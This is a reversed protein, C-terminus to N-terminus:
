CFTLWTRAFTWSSVWSSPFLMGGLASGSMVIGLALGRWRRFYHLAVTSTPVFVLGIGAGMGFAQCFFVKRLILRSHFSINYLSVLGYQEDGILSLVFLSCTYWNLVIKRYRSYLVLNFFTSHWLNRCPPLLWRRCAKWSSSVPCLGFIISFKWDMQICPTLPPVHSYSSFVYRVVGPSHDTLTVHNYQELLHFYFVYIYSSRPPM